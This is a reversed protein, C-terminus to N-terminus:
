GHIIKAHLQKQIREELPSGVRLGTKGPVLHDRRILSTEGSEDELDLGVHIGFMAITKGKHANARALKLAIHIDDMGAGASFQAEGARVFEKTAIAFGHVFGERAVDDSKDPM